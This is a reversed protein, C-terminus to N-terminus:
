TSCNRFRVGKGAPWYIAFVRFVTINGVGAGAVVRHAEGGGGDVAASLKPRAQISLLRLSGGINLATARECQQLHQAIGADVVELFPLFATAFDGGLFEPKSGMFVATKLSDANTLSVFGTNM